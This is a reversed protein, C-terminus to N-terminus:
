CLKHEASKLYVDFCELRTIFTELIEATQRMTEVSDALIRLVKEKEPFINRDDGEKCCVKAVQSIVYELQGVNSELSNIDKVLSELQKMFAVDTLSGTGSARHCLFPQV